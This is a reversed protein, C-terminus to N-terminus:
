IPKNGLVELAIYIGAYGEECGFPLLGQLLLEALWAGMWELAYGDGGLTYGTM